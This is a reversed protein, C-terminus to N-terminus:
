RNFIINSKGRSARLWALAASENFSRRPMGFPRQETMPVPGASLRDPVTVVFGSHGQAILTRLAAALKHDDIQAVPIRTGDDLLLATSM